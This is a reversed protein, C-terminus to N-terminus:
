GRRPVLPLALHWFGEGGPDCMVWFVGVDSHRQEFRVGVTEVEDDATCTLLGPGVVSWTFREVIEGGLMSDSRTEGTGDAAFRVTDFMLATHTGPLTEWDGVPGAALLRRRVEADTLDM